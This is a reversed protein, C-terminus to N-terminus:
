AGLFKKLTEGKYSKSYSYDTVKGSDYVFVVAGNFLPNNAMDLYKKIVSEDGAKTLPLDHRNAENVAVIEGNEFSLKVSGTFNSKQKQNLYEVICSFRVKM